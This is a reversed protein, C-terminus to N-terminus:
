CALKGCFIADMLRLWGIGAAGARGGRVGATSCGGAHRSIFLAAREVFLIAAGPVRDGGRVVAVLEVLRAKQATAAAREVRFLQLQEALHRASAQKM